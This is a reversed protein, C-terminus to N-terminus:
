VAPQKGAWQCESNRCRYIVPEQFADAVTGCSPCIAAKLQQNPTGAASNFKEEAAETAAKWAEECRPCQRDEVSCDKICDWEDFTKAAV